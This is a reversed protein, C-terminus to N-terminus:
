VYIKEKVHFDVKIKFMKTSPLYLIDEIGTRYKIENIFRKIEEETSAIVTFWMNYSHNRLYNHTVGEYSNIFESVEEIREKPVKIACLTSSFGMKKSNFVGGIRRIEGGEKLEKIFKIVEEETINLKKALALYPRSELPFGEQISNLLEIYERNM